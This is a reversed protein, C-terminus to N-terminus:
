AVRRTKKKLRSIQRRLIERQKRNKEAVLAQKKIKLDRIQMKIERVSRNAKKPKDDRIGRHAKIADLLDQKNMGHVGKLEPIDHAIERLEKVIMKDLPKEIGETGKTM